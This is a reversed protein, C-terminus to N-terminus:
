GESDPLSLRCYNDAFLSNYKAALDSCNTAVFNLQFAAEMISLKLVSTSNSSLLYRDHLRVINEDLHYHESSVTCLLLEEIKGMLSYLTFQYYSSSSQKRKAYLINSQNFVSFAM